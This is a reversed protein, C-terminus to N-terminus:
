RQVYTMYGNVKSSQTTTICVQQLSPAVLETGWGSHNLFTPTGATLSGTIPGVMETAGTDCPNTVQTGYLIETTNATTARGADELVVSCVYTQTGTASAPIVLTTTGSASAFAASQKPYQECPDFTANSTAPPQQVYTVWGSQQGTSAGTVACLSKGAPVNLITSGSPSSTSFLTASSSVESPSIAGTLATAGTDCATSVKTGYEFQLSESATAQQSLVFGCVSIPVNAVGTILNITAASAATDIPVSLKPYTTCPDVTPVHSIDNTQVYTVYGSQQITGTSIACVDKGAPAAVQTGHVSTGFLTNTIGSSVTSAIIPGQLSTKGTGCNTGTGYELGITGTGNVQNVYGGCIYTTDSALNSILKTDTASSVNIAASQKPFQNCPDYTNAVSQAFARPAVLLMSFALLTILKRM